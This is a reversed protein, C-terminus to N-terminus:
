HAKRDLPNENSGNIIGDDELDEQRSTKPRKKLRDEERKAEKMLVKTAQVHRNSIYADDKEAWDVNYEAAIRRIEKRLEKGEEVLDRWRVMDFGKEQYLRQQRASAATNLVQSYSVERNHYLFYVYGMVLCALSTMYTIPEMADWGLPSYFTLKFVVCWYAVLGGAVYLAYQKATKAALKDCEYKISHERDLEETVRGLQTRLYQTRDEFSPVSVKVEDDGILICFRTTAAAERIFDAVGISTSWRAHRALDKFVIPTKEDEIEARILTELYSLPQQTHLLFAVVQQNPMPLLLKLSNATTFSFQGHKAAIDEKSLEEARIQRAADGQRAQFSAFRYSPTHGKLLEVSARSASASLNSRSFLRRGLCIGARPLM